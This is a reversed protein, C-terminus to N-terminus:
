PPQQSFAMRGEPPFIMSFGVTQKRFGCTLREMRWLPLLSKEVRFIITYLFLGVYTRNKLMKSKLTKTM